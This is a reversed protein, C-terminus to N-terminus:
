KHGTAEVFRRFQGVTVEHKGLYFPQTLTVTHLPSELYGSLNHGPEDDPSGMRFTGPPVLVLEMGLDNRVEVPLGLHKAYEAQYQRATAAEFPLKPAEPRPGKAEVDLARRLSEIRGEEKGGDKKKLAALLGPTKHLATVEDATLARNFLALEDLLGIYNVA